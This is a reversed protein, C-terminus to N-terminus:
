RNLLAICKDIERVIRNVKIKADHADGSSAIVSKALKLTNYKSELENIKKDKSRITELLEDKEKYLAKNTSKLQEVVSFVDKIKEKLSHIIEEQNLM